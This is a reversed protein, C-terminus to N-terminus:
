RQHSSNSTHEESRDLKLVAADGNPYAEGPRAFAPAFLQEILDRMMRGGSGHGLVVQPYRRLPVPCNFTSMNM